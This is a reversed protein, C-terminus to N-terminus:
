NTKSLQKLVEIARKDNQKDVFIHDHYYAAVVNCSIKNEALVKSVAATLGVAELSSHVNLTIWSAVYHYKLSLEDAKQKELVLTVGEQERFSALVDHLNISFSDSVSVFVYDGEHLQPNMESLLESLNTKGSM